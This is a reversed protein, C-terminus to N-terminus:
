PLPDRDEPRVCLQASRALLLGGVFGPLPSNEEARLFLFRPALGSRRKTM